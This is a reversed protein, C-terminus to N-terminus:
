RFEHVVEIRGVIHANFEALETAPGWLELITESGARQVPYRSVCDTDIEFRTM